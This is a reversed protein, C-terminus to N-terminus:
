EKVLHSLNRKSVLRLQQANQLITLELPDALIACAFYINTDDGGGIFIQPLFYISPAETLIKVVPEADKGHLYRRKSLASLVNWRESLMEYRDKAAPQITGVHTKGVLIRFKQL